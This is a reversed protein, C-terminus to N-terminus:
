EVAKAQNIERGGYGTGAFFAMLHAGDYDGAQYAEEFLRVAENLDQPMEGSGTGVGLVSVVRASVIIYEPHSLSM